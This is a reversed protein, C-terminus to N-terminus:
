GDLLTVRLLPIVNGVNRQSLSNQLRDDSARKLQTAPECIYDDTKSDLAIIEAEQPPENV